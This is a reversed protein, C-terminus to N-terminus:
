EKLGNTKKIFAMLADRKFLKKGGVRIGKPIAGKKEWVWLTKLTIRLHDAVEKRTMYDPDANQTGGKHVSKQDGGPDNAVPVPEELSREHQLRFVNKVHQVKESFEEGYVSEMLAIRHQISEQSEARTKGPDCINESFYLAVTNFILEVIEQFKQENRPYIHQLAEFMYGANAHLLSILDHDSMNKAPVEEMADEYVFSDKMMYIMQEGFVMFRLAPYRELKLLKQLLPDIGTLTVFAEGLIRKPNNREM